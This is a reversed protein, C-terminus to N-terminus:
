MDLEVNCPVVKAANLITKMQTECVIIFLSVIFSIDIKVERNRNLLHTPFVQKKGKKAEQRKGKEKCNSM